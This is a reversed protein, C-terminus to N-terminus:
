FAEEVRVSRFGIRRTLTAATDLNKFLKEREGHTTLTVLNGNADKFEVRWGNGKPSPEIIAEKFKGADFWAQIQNLQM